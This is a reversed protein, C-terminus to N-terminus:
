EDASDSSFAGRMVIEVIHYAFPNCFSNVRTV